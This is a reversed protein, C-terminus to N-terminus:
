SSQSRKIQQNVFLKEEPDNSETTNKDKDFNSELKIKKYVVKVEPVNILTTSKDKNFTQTQRIQM